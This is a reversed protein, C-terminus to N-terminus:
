HGDTGFGAARHIFKMESQCSVPLIWEDQGIRVCTNKEMKLTGFGEIKDHRFRGEYVAGNSFTYTGRGEKLGARFTGEFSGQNEYTCLGRGEFKNNKLMGDYSCEGENHLIGRGTWTDSQWEGNYYSTKNRLTLVGQGCREGRVWEGTYTSGSRATYYVGHGHFLSERFEGDYRDGNEFWQTGKGCICNDVFSGRYILEGTRTLLIGQGNMKGRRWDGDYIEGNEFIYMGKGHRLGNRLEGEYIQERMIVAMRRNRASNSSNRREQRVVVGPNAYMGREEKVAVPQSKQQKMEVQERLLQRVLLTTRRKATKRILAAKDKDFPKRFISEVERLNKHRIVKSEDDQPPSFSSCTFNYQTVPPSVDGGYRSYCDSKTLVGRAHALESPTLASGNGHRSIFAYNQKSTDLKLVRNPIRQRKSARVGLNDPEFSTSRKRPVDLRVFDEENTDERALYQKDGEFRGTKTNVYGNIAFRGFRNCGYGSTIMWDEGDIKEVKGMRLEFKEPVNLYKKTSRRKKRGTAHAPNLMSFSGSWRGGPPTTFHGCTRQEHKWAAGNLFRNSNEDDFTGMSNFDFSYSIKGMQNGQYRWNGDLILRSGKLHMRGLVKVFYDTAPPAEEAEETQVTEEAKVDEGKPTEILVHPQDMKKIVSTDDLRHAESCVLEVM